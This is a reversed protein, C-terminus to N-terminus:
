QYQYGYVELECIEMLSATEAFVMVYRGCMIKPCEFSRYQDPITFSGGSVCKLNVRGDNELSDGIRVDFPNMRNWCCGNKRNKLAVSKICAKQLLDVRFWPPRGARLTIACKQHISFLNGDVANEPITTSDWQTSLTAPKNLGINTSATLISIFTGFAM